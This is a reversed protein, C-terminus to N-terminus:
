TEPPTDIDAFCSECFSTDSGAQEEPDLGFRSCLETAHTSGVALADAVHAWLPQRLGGRRHSNIVAREVLDRDSVRPSYGIEGM